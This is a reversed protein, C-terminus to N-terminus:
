LLFVNPDIREGGRSPSPPEDRQHLHTSDERIIAPRVYLTPVRQGPLLVELDSSSDDVVGQLGLSIKTDEKTLSCLKRNHLNERDGLNQPRKLAKVIRKRWFAIEFPSEGIRLGYAAIEDSISSFDLLDWVPNMTSRLPWVGGGEPAESPKWDLRNKYANDHAKKTWKKVVAPPYGRSIYLDKLWSLEESYIEPTYSLVALRHVESGFAAKLIKDSHGTCWPLREFNNLPKRYPRYKLRQEPSHPNRWIDLDLFVGSSHSFEWNLKLGPLILKGLISKCADLNEAYVVAFIDDIYRRYLLVSERLVSVNEFLEDEYTAAYLNAIDPAADMGMALGDRQAVLWNESLTKVRFILTDQQAHFLDTILRVKEEGRDTDGYAKEALKGLRVSCDQIDVNTYFGGIDASCIFIKSRWSPKSLMRLKPNLIGEIDRCLHKSSVLIWPFRPLLTKLIVSLMQSAPQQIVSHCPVIPRIAWPTKHIKPLGNFLPITLTLEDIWGDPEEVLWGTSADRKLGPLRSVLYSRLGPLDQAMQTNAVAIIKRVQKILRLKAVAPDCIQYGKNNRIFNCIADDYWDLTVLATGLNKDTPKVLIANDELWRSAENLDVATPRGDRTGMPTSTLVRDIEDWGLDFAEEIWQVVRGGGEQLETEVYPVPLRFFEDSYKQEQDYITKAEETTMWRASPSEPNPPPYDFNIIRFLQRQEHESKWSMGSSTRLAWQNMAKTKLVSWAQEVKKGSYGIPWIYKLGAALPDIVEQPISINMNTHIRRTYCQSGLLWDPASFSVLFLVIERPMYTVISPYTTYDFINLKRRSSLVHVQFYYACIQIQTRLQLNMILSLPYFSSLFSRTACSTCESSSNTCPLGSFSDWDDCALGIEQWEEEWLGKERREKAAVKEQDQIEGEVKFGEYSKESPNQKIHVAETWEEEGEGAEEVTADLFDSCLQTLSRRDVSLVSASCLIFPLLSDSVKKKGSLKKTLDAVKKALAEVDNKRTESASRPAKKSLEMRNLADNLKVDEANCVLSNIKGIIIPAVRHLVEQQFERGDIIESIGVPLPDRYKGGASDYTFRSRLDAMREELNDRLTKLGTDASASAQFLALEKTKEKIWNALIEDKLALTSTQVSEAFSVFSRAAAGEAFNHRSSQPASLLEHSWQIAPVRISHLVTPYTHNTKHTRLKALHTSVAGLRLVDAHYKKVFDMVTGKFDIAIHSSIASVSRSSEIKDALARVALETPTQQLSQLHLKARLAAAEAAEASPPERLKPQAPRAGTETPEVEEMIVDQEPAFNYSPGIAPDVSAGRSRFRRAGRAGKVPSPSARARRLREAQNLAAQPSPSAPLNLTQGDASGAVSTDPLSGSTGFATASPVLRLSFDSVQVSPSEIESVSEEEFELDPTQTNPPAKTKGKAKSTAPKPPM